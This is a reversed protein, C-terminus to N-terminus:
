ARVAQLATEARPGPGPEHVKTVAFGAMGLLDQVELRTREKGGLVVLMQLDALKGPHFGPTEPIMHDVVLLVSEPKMAERVKALIKLADEDSWDHLVRSLLYRDGGAPVSDFFSGGIVECRGAVGQEALLAPADAVAYPLDLLVGTADPYRRLLAGITAGSGGGVDIIVQAESLDAHELVSPVTGPGAMANFAAAAEPNQGLYEFHSMGFIREFAPKGTRVSYEVDAWARFSEEGNVIAFHRLGGSADSTLLRGGTTLEFRRGPQEALLDFAAVARCFRYLADRDADVRNALEGIELAGDKLQDPIGLKAIVYIAQGVWPLGMLMLRQVQQIENPPAAHQASMADGRPKGAPVQGAPLFLREPRDWYGGVSTSGTRREARQLMAHLTEAYRGVPTLCDLLVEGADTQGDAVLEGLTEVQQADAVERARLLATRAQRYASWLHRERYGAPEQGPVSPPLQLLENLASRRCGHMLSERVTHPDAPQGVLQCQLARRVAICYGFVADICLVAIADRFRGSEHQKREYYVPMAPSTSSSDWASVCDLTLSVESLMTEAMRLTTVVDSCLRGAARLEEAAARKLADHNMTATVEVM